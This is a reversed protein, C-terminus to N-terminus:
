EDDEEPAPVVTIRGSGDHHSLTATFAEPTVEWRLTWDGRVTVASLFQMSNRAEFVGSVDGYWVPFGTILFNHTPNSEMFEVISNHFEDTQDDWCYGYCEDRPVWDAIKEDFATCTCGNTTEGKYLYTETTTNTM